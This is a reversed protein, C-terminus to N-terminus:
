HHLDTIRWKYLRGPQKYGLQFAAEHDSLRYFNLLENAKEIKVRNFYDKITMGYETFFIRNLLSYGAKQNVYSPLKKQFESFSHNQLDSVAKRTKHIIRNIATKMINLKYKAANFKDITIWISILSRNLHFSSGILTKITQYM